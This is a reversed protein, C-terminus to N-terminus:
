RRRRISGTTPAEVDGSVRLAAYDKAKLSGIIDETETNAAGLRKLVSHGFSLTGEPALAVVDAEGMRRLDDRQALYQVAITAPVDPYFRRLNGVLQKTAAADGMTVIVLRARAIAIADLLEANTLDGYRVTHRVKAAKALNEMDVDFATYPIRARELVACIVRAVPGYGAVVVSADAIPTPLLKHVAGGELRSTFRYGLNILLPSALFSLTIVTVGITYDRPSLLDDANASAFIVYAIEDFPMMLLGTLVAAQLGFRFLRALAFLM